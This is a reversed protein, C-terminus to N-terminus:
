IQRRDKLWSPMPRMKVGSVIGMAIYLTLISSGGYSFFPLTLGVVPLVYLCMGVNIVTQVMLMGAIGMTIYASLYSKAQRSVWACRLIIAFLILLVACCGLLGFEEGCVAFIEDTHRAPLFGDSAQSIPGQLFGKGTLGGSTIAKLSQGQQWGKGLPDLDHDFIVRFRLIRYDEWYETTPLIQTWVYYAGGGVAGFGFVFWWRSVGGMWMMILFLAMYVLLMGFDKSLYILLGAYLVTLIAYKILATFRGIGKPRERNMLWAMVVIYSLKAIEGPQFGFFTFHPFYVWSRNGTDDAVGFPKLLLIVGIGLLFFMWWWKEMLFEIDIFSIWIFLVIGAMVFVAQKLFSKHLEPKYRTASYILMLGMLSAIICLLLLFVDGKNYFERLWDIPQVVLDVLTDKLEQLFRFRRRRPM